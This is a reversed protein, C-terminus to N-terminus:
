QDEQQYSGKLEFLEEALDQGVEKDMILPATNNVWMALNDLDERRLEDLPKDLHLRCQRDLYRKAAFGLYHEAIEVVEAALKNENNTEAPQDTETEM